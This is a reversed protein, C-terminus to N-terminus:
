RPQASSLVQDFIHENTLLFELTASPLQARLSKLALKLTFAVHSSMGQMLFSPAGVAWSWGYPKTRVDCAIPLSASMATLDRQITRRTVLIGRARLLADIAAADIKRPAHPLLSLMTWQRVLSDAM